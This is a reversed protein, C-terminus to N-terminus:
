TLGHNQTIQPYDKKFATWREEDFEDLGFSGFYPQKFHISISPEDIWYWKKVLHGRKELASIVLKVIGDQPTTNSFEIELIHENMWDFHAHWEKLFPKLLSELATARNYESEAFEQQNM